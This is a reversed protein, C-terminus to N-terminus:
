KGRHDPMLTGEGLNDGLFGVDTREHGGDPGTANTRCGIGAGNEHDEFGARFTARRRVLDNLTQARLQRGHRADLSVHLIGRHDADPPCSVAACYWYV